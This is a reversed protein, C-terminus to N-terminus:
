RHLANPVPIPRVESRRSRFGAYRAMGIISGVVNARHTLGLDPDMPAGGFLERALGKLDWYLHRLLRRDAVFKAYLAGNGEAYARALHRIDAQRRRGHHHFVVCDPVYEIPLGARYARYVFDTDEASRFRAGAGFLPDFPGIRQIVDRHIAMNCGHIFGGPHDSGDYIAPESATKITFPLDRQDGLEVRGGRIVPDRDHAFHRLMNVAYHPHLRCDDDTFALIDGGAAAMGANRAIALGPQPEHVITVPLPATAQWELVTKATADRSGNDVLVLEADSLAGASTVISDLTRLIRDAGDRTCVIFSIGITTM